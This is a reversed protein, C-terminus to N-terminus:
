DDTTCSIPLNESAMKEISVELAIRNEAENNGNDGSLPERNSTEGEAPWPAGKVIPWHAM